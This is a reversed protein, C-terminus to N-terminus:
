FEYALRLCVANALKSGNNSYMQGIYSIGVLFNNRWGGIKMGLTPSFFFGSINPADAPNSADFAYGFDVQWYPSYNRSYQSIFNGRADLYVPVSVSVNQYVSPMCYAVRAAVGVGIKIYESFRYGNVFAIEEVGAVGSLFIAASNLEASCWWGNHQSSLDVYPKRDPNEPVALSSGIQIKRVELARYGYVNGDNSEVIVSDRDNRIVKGKIINGNNLAVEDQAIVSMSLLMAVAFFIFRFRM